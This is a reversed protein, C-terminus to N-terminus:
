DLRKGKRGRSILDERQAGLIKSGLSYNQADTFHETRGLAVVNAGDIGSIPCLSDISHM